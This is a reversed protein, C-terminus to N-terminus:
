KCYFPASLVGDDGILLNTEPFDVATLNQLKTIARGQLDYRPGGEGAQYFPVIEGKLFEGDRNTYVKVIPALGNPGSLNFRAYTCFNGLSYCILRGKYLEMARIVHPGHGFIVDAGADVVTHAFKCVNGRNYGLYEEDTCPVHQYDKGEAGGHFSVIVIDCISDLGAVIEAAGEYDKLSLTGTHPAFAAFGYIVGEKEFITSPVTRFGAFPVGADKLLKATSIRGELGFDNVHNNAVSLVDYGADLICELYADPMRFVYCVSPDKCKKPTGGESCFVGELNGFAVDGSQLVDTVDSFLKSCDNGPPLYRNDPFNTGPMVDGTGIICITDIVDESLIEVITDESFTAIKPILMDQSEHAISDIGVSLLAITDVAKKPVKVLHTTTDLTTRVPDVTPISTETQTKRSSFCSTLISLLLLLLFRSLKGM